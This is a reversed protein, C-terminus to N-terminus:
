KRYNKLRLELDDAIKTSRKEISKYKGQELLVKNKLIPDILYLATELQTMSGHNIRGSDFSIVKSIPEIKLYCRENLPNWKSFTLKGLMTIGFRYKMSSTNIIIEDTLTFISFPIILAPSVMIGFTKILSAIPMLVLVVIIFMGIVNISSKSFNLTKSMNFFDNNGVGM